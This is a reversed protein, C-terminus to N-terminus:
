SGQPHRNSNTWPRPAENSRSLGIVDSQTPVPFHHHLNEQQHQSAGNPNAVNQSALSIYGNQSQQILRYQAAAMELNVQASSGDLAPILLM